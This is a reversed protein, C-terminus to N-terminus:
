SEKPKMGIGLLSLFFSSPLYKTVVAEYEGSMLSELKRGSYYIKDPEDQFPSHIRFISYKSPVFIALKDSVRGFEKLIELFEKRSFHEMVGQNYVIGISRKKFPLHRIDCLALMRCKNKAHRIITKSNDVGIGNPIHSLIEGTGCGTELVLEDPTAIKKVIRSFIRSFYVRRLTEILGKKISKSTWYNEWEDGM